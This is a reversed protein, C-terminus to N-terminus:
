QIERRRPNLRYLTQVAYWTVYLDRNDKVLRTLPEEGERFRQSSIVEVARCRVHLSTDNLAALVKELLGARMDNLERGQVFHARPLRKFFEMATMRIRERPDDILELVNRAQTPDPRKVLYRLAAYRLAPSPDGLMGAIEDSPMVEKGRFRDFAEKVSGEPPAAFFAAWGALVALASVSIWAARFAPQRSSCAAAVLSVWLTLVLIAPLVPGRMMSELPGLFGHWVANRMAWSPGTSEAAEVANRVAVWVKERLKPVVVPLGEREEGLLVTRVRWNAPLGEATSLADEVEKVTMHLAKCDAVLVDYRGEHFRRVAEELAATRVTYVPINLRGYIPRILMSDIRSLGAGVILVPQFHTPATYESAYPTYRYYFRDLARGTRSAMLVNDRFSVFFDTTRMSTRLVTAGRYAWLVFGLAALVNLGILIYAHKRSPICRETEARDGGTRAGRWVSTPSVLSSVAAVAAPFAFALVNASVGSLRFVQCSVTGAAAFAAGAGILRSLRNPLSECLLALLFLGVGAGIGVTVGFFAGAALDQGASRELFHSAPVPPTVGIEKLVEQRAAIREYSQNAVAAGVLTVLLCSVAAAVLCQGARRSVRRAMSLLLMQLRM